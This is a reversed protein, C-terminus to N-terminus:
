SQAPSQFCFSQLPSFPFSSDAMHCKLHRARSRRLVSLSITAAHQTM